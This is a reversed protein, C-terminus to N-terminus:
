SQGNKIATIDFYESCDKDHLGAITSYGYREAISCIENITYVNDQTRKEGLKDSAIETLLRNKFGTLKLEKNKCVSLVEKIENISKNKCDISSFNYLSCEDLFLVADFRFLNMETKYVGKKLHIEIKKIRPIIDKLSNLYDTSIYFEFDRKKRKSIRQELDNITNKDEKWLEVTKYFMDRLAASKMDGLFIKGGYKVKDTMKKLCATFEEEEGMYQTASNIFAIDFENQDIRDINEGSMVYFDTKNKQSETLHRKIYRIGEGAVDVGLYYDINDIINFMMMGTGCAIELVKKPKLSSIIDTTDNRWESMEERSYPSGTFSSNWGISNLTFDAANNEDTMSYYQNYLEGMIDSHM